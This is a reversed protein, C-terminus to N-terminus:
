TVLRRGTPCATGVRIRPEWALLSCSRLETKMTWITTLPLPRRARPIPAVGAEEKRCRRRSCSAKAMMTTAMTQM